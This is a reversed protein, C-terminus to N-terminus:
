LMQFFYFNGEAATYTHLHSINIETKAQRLEEHDKSNYNFM